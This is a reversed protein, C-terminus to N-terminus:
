SEIRVTFKHDRVVQELIRSVLEQRSIDARDALRDLESLVKLDIRLVIPKTKKPEGPIVKM